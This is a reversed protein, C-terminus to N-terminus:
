EDHDSDDSSSSGWGGADPDEDEEVPAPPVPRAQSAQAFFIMVEKLLQPYDTLLGLAEPHSLAAHANARFYSMAYEKLAACNYTESTVLLTCCTRADMRSMLVYQCADKLAGFNWMDALLFLQTLKPTPLGAFATSDDTLAYEVFLRVTDADITDPVKVALRTNPASELEYLMVGFFEPSRAALVAKFALVAGDHCDLSVDYGTEFAKGFVVLDRSLSPTDASMRTPESIVYCSVRMFGEATFHDPALLWRDHKLMRETGIVGAKLFAPGWTRKCASLGRKLPDSISLEVRHIKYKDGRSRKTPANPADLRVLFVGVFLSRPGSRPRM